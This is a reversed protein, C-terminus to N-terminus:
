QSTSGPNKRYSQEGSFLHYFPRYNTIDNVDGSKHTLICRAILLCPPVHGTRLMRTALLSLVATAADDKLVRMLVHDPGPATDVAIRSIAFKIEEKTIHTPFSDNLEVREVETFHSIYDPRICNNPRSFYSNFHAYVKDVAIQCSPKDSTLVRRVAKRRQNYYDFQTQEYQYKQKRKARDRKTAREPNSSNKYSQQCNFNKNKKRLAYYKRAPHKPGPLYDIAESLFQLFNNTLTDFEIDTLDCDFKTKWHLLQQKYNSLPDNVSVPHSKSPINNISTKCTSSSEGSNWITYSSTNQREVLKLRHLDPHYKSIHISIGRSNVFFKGCHPCPVESAVSSIETNTSVSTNIPTISEEDTSLIM